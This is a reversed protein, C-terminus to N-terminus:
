WRTLNGEIDGGLNILYDVINKKNYDYAISTLEDLFYISIKTNKLVYIMIELKDNMCANKLIFHNLYKIDKYNEVIYKIIELKGYMTGHEIIKKILFRDNCESLFYKIIDLHDNCIAQITAEDNNVRFNAGCEVLYKVVNLHNNMSARIIASGKRANIDAGYKILHKVIELYGRESSQILACNNMENIDAGNQILYNLVHPHNYVAAYVVSCNGNNIEAGSEVLLKVIELNGLKSALRLAYGNSKNINVGKSLCFNIIQYLQNTIGWELLDNLNKKYDIGLVLLTEFVIPDSLDYWKGLRAIKNEIDIEQLYNGYALKFFLDKAEFIYIKECECKIKKDKLPKFGQCCENKNNSIRFYKM